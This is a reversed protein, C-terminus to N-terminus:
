VRSRRCGCRLTIRSGNRMLRSIPEGCRLCVGDASLAEAVGELRRALSNLDGAADWTQASKRGDRYEAIKRLAEDIRRQANREEGEILPQQDKAKRGGTMM